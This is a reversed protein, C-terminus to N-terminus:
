WLSSCVVLRVPYTMCVYAHYVPFIAEHLYGKVGFTAVDIKLSTPEDLLSVQMDCVQIILDAEIFYGFLQRNFSCESILGVVALKDQNRQIISSQPPPDSDVCLILM